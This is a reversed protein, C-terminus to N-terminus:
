ISAGRRATSHYAALTLVFAALVVHFFAPIWATFWPPPDRLALGAGIRALSGAMYLGGIWGLVRASHPHPRPTGAAVGRVLWLMVALIVLQVGLLLGYPLGSGQFDGFHPLGEIPAWRQLAQGAVRLAFLATLAGLVGAYRRRTALPTM